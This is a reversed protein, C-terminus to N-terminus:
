SSVLYLALHEDDDELNYEATELEYPLFCACMPESVPWSGALFTVARPESPLVHPQGDMKSIPDTVQPQSLLGSLLLQSFAPNM